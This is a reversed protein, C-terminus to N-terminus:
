TYTVELEVRHLGLVVSDSVRRVELIGVVNSTHPTGGPNEVIAFTAFSGPNRWVTPLGSSAVNTGSWRVDALGEVLGSFSEIATLRVQYLNQQNSIPYSEHWQPMNPGVPVSEGGVGWVGATGGADKSLTIRSEFSDYRWSMSFDTGYSASVGLVQIKSDVVRIPSTTFSPVGQAGMVMQMQQLTM